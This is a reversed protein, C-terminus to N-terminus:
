GVDGGLEQRALSAAGAPSSPHAGAGGLVPPALARIGEGVDVGWPLVWLVPVDVGAAVYQEVHRRCADPSGHVILSDVVEDPISAAAAARDGAEWLEWLRRLAPSRGLWEHYRRYVPVTLYGAIMRRAQARVTVEDESPCVFLRAVVQRDDGEDHVCRVVREVDNAGLWNLLVGDAFAGAMRLMGERLAAVFLKPPVEPPMALRFGTVEFTQYARTVKAGTFAERLFEVLDRTRALPRDFSIGNWGSVIVSSSSGIGVTVRGPALGALAAASQALCAPGRTFSSVIATGVGLSPAALATAVLPSFADLEDIESSWVSAYGLMAAERALDSCDALGTGSPVTLGLPFGTM